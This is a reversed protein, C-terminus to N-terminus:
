LLYRKMVENSLLYSAPRLTIRHDKYDLWGQLSFERSIKKWFAMIDAPVEYERELQQLDVGEQHRLGLFLVEEAGEIPSLQEEEAKPVQFGKQLAEMYARSDKIWTWRHLGKMSVAGSGFGLYDGRRWYNINHRCEFGPLAFNSLEYQQFGKEQLLAVAKEYMAVEEDESLLNFSGQSLKQALVTHDEIKLNYLSLHKPKLQLAKELTFLWDELTQGPIGYIFDFSINTLGSHRASQVVKDVDEPTHNRGLFDLNSQQFAQVGMSLRNCGQEVWQYMEADTLTGPNAEITVEFNQPIEFYTRLLAMIQRLFLPSMLSPTGGGLFLTAPPGTKDFSSQSFFERMHMLIAQGYQERVTATSLHSYFDCYYCKSQCFPIHVYLGWDTKMM